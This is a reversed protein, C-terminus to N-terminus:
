AADSDADTLAEQCRVCYRAWPIAELRKEAIPEDCNECIGFQGAALRRRAANVERLLGAEIENRNLFLWEETSQQSLDGEDSPEEVRLIAGGASHKSLSARLAAEKERLALELHELRKRDKRTM